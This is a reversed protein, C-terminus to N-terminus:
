EKKAPEVIAPTAEPDLVEPLGDLDTDFDDEEEEPGFESVYSPAYSMIAPLFPLPRAMGSEKWIIGREDCYTKRM